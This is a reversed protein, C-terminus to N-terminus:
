SVSIVVQTSPLTPGPQSSPTTSTSKQRTLLPKSQHSNTASSTSSIEMESSSNQSVLTVRAQLANSSPFIPMPRSNSHNVLPTSRWQGCESDCPRLLSLVPCISLLDNHTLRQSELSTWSNIYTGYDGFSVGNRVIWAFYHSSLM